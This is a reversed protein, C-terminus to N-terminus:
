DTGFPFLKNKKFASTKNQIDVSTFANTVCMKMRQFVGPLHHLHHAAGSTNLGASEQSVPATFMLEYEQCHKKSASPFTPGNFTQDAEQEDRPDGPSLRYMVLANVCGWIKESHMEGDPFLGNNDPNSGSALM